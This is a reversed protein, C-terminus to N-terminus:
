SLRVIVGNEDPDPISHWVTLTHQMFLSKFDSLSTPKFIVAKLSKRILHFYINFNNEPLPSVRM